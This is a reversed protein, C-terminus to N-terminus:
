HVYGTDQEVFIHWGAVPIDLQGALNPRGLADFSFVVPTLAVGAPAAMSFSGQTAPSPVASSCAADYCLAVAGASVVVFVNTRQAIAVKQGYRVMSQTQDAFGRADYASRDFFRPLAVVSLIGIIVIVTVLEVLTFGSDRSM